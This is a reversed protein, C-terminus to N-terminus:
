DDGTLDIVKGADKWLRAVRSERKVILTAEEKIPRPTHKPTGPILGRSQLSPKKMYRFVFMVYPKEWSDLCDWDETTYEQVTKVRKSYDIVKYQSPNYPRLPPIYSVREGFGVMASIDMGKVDKECIHTEVVETGPGPDSNNDSTNVPSERKINNSDYKDTKDQEAWYEYTKKVKTRTIRRIPVRIEGISAIADKEIQGEEREEMFAIDKFCFYRLESAGSPLTIWQGRIELGSSSLTTNLHKGDFNAEVRYVVDQRIEPNNGDSKFSCSVWFTQNSVAEVYVTKVPFDREEEVEDTFEPLEGREVTCIRVTVGNFEPM